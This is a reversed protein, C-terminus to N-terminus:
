HELWVHNSDLFQSGEPTRAEPAHLKYSRSPRSPSMSAPPACLNSQPRSGV